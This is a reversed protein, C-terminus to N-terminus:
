GGFGVLAKYALLVGAIMLAFALGPLLVGIGRPLAMYETAHKMAVEEVVAPAPQDGPVGAPALERQDRIRGTALRPGPHAERHRRSDCAGREAAM